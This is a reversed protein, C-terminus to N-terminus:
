ENTEEKNIIRDGLIIDLVLSGPMHLSDRRLHVLVPNMVKGTAYCEECDLKYSFPDIRTSQASEHTTHGKGLCHVCPIHTDLGESELLDALLLLRFNDIVLRQTEDHAAQAVNIVKPTIIENPIGIIQVPDVVVDHIIEAALKKPLKRQIGKVADKEEQDKIVYHGIADSVFKHPSQIYLNWDVENNFKGSLIWQYDTHYYKDDWAKKPDKNEVVYMMSFLNLGILRMQKENMKGDAILLHILRPLIADETDVEWWKNTKTQKWMRNIEAMINM